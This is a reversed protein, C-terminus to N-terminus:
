GFRLRSGAGYSGFRAKLSAAVCCSWKWGHQGVGGHEPVRDLDLMVNRSIEKTAALDPMLLLIAPHPSLAVTAAAM